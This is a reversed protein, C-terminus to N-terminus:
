VIAAVTVAGAPLLTVFAALTFGGSPVCFEPVLQVFIVPLLARLKSGEVPVQEAVSV